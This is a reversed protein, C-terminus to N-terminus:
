LLEELGYVLRDLEKVKRCALFLGPMMANRDYADHRISLTEGAGAFMVVQHSFLGPLRVSHTPVGQYNEGRALQKEIKSEKNQVNAILEATKKATGSPADIKDPHHLEIIEVDPFYKAADQTYKMMLVASLSFNPGIVGGLSKEQCAKQLQQVQEITLGSAGIVPHVNHKIITQANSFVCDPITFDIVIDPQHTKIAQELDDNQDIAAVCQLDREKSLAAVTTTGMRGKAGNVLINLSM